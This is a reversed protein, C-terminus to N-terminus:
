DASSTAPPSSCEPTTEEDDSEADKLEVEESISVNYAVAEAENTFERGDGAMYYTRRETPKISCGNKIKENVEAIQEYNTYAEILEKQFELNINDVIGMEKLHLPMEKKDDSM